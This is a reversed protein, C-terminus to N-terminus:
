VLLTRRILLTAHVREVERYRGSGAARGAVPVKSGIRVTRTGAMFVRYLRDVAFDLDLFAGGDDPM